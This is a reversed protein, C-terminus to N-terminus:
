TAAAWNGKPTLNGATILALADQSLAEKHVSANSLKGDDRQILVINTNLDDLTLKVSNFETDVQTAPLPDSPNTTQFDNFNFNRNYDRPQAM